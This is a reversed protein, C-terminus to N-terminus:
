ETSSGVESRRHPCAERNPRKADEDKMTPIAVMKATIVSRRAALWSLSRKLLRPTSGTLRPVGSARSVGSCSSAHFSTPRSAARRSGPRALGSLREVGLRLPSQLASSGADRSEEAEERWRHLLKLLAAEEDVALKKLPQREIGPVIGAVLWSSLSM